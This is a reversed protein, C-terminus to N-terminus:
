EIVRTVIGGGDPIKKYELRPILSPIKASLMPTIDTGVPLSYLLSIMNRVPTTIQGNGGATDMLGGDSTHDFFGIAHCAEHTITNVCHQLDSRIIINASVMRGNSRYYSSFTKGCIGAGPDGITVTIGESPNYTVFTFPLGWQRFSDEAGSIGNTNVLIPTQWRVIIGSNYSANHTNLYNYDGSPWSSGGGSSSSGGGGSSGGNNCSFTFLLILLFM